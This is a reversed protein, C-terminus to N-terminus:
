ENEKLTIIIDYDKLALLHKSKAIGLVALINQNKDELVLVQERKIIGIKKDTLLDSVKKTGTLLQIKDGKKRSRIIIPLMSKNYWLTNNKLINKDNNKESVIVKRNEDIEYEGCTSIVMHVKPFKLETFYLSIKDYEKVFTLKGTVKSIINPKKANILKLIEDINKHGLLVKKTIAFLIEKQLFLSQKLFTKQSFFVRQEDFKVNDEIFQKVIKKIEEDANRIVESFKAFQWHAEPNEWFISPIIEHRIRNRTYTKEKNTEDEFYIIEREKAIRILEDKLLLLFPRVILYNSQQVVPEMGAYGRLNSGRLLRMIITEMNDNAHHALLLYDGHFENIVEEFFQYRFKRAEEQFNGPHFNYDFYSIRIDIGKKHCFEKIFQEEEISQLRMQHNVHAVVIKFNILEHARILEDLLVMSDIGTSVGVVITKNELSLNNEIFFNIVLNSM